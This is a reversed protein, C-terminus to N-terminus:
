EGVGVAGYAYFARPGAWWCPAPRRVGDFETRGFSILSDCILQIWFSIQGNLGERCEVRHWSVCLYLRRNMLLFM